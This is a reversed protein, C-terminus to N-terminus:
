SPTPGHPATGYSTPPSASYRQTHPLTKYDDFSDNPMLTYSGPVTHFAGEHFKIMHGSKRPLTLTFALNEFDFFRQALISEFVNFRSSYVSSIKKLMDTRFHNLRIRNVQFRM